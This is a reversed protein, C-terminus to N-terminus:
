DFDASRSIDELALINERVRDLKEIVADVSRNGLVLRLYEKKGAAMGVGLVVEFIREAAKVPDGPQTGHENELHQVIKQVPGDRYSDSPGQYSVAGRGLFNTRFPGPEVMLVRIGFPVLEQSLSESIAELAHKSAAYLSVAPPARLGAVSGINVITGAKAARMTPLVAQTVKLVGFVNTDFQAKATTEDIDEVAGVVAFGANNVVVDLRGYLKTADDIIQNIEPAPSTVDLTIWHGGQKTVEEVLEPTKSPNRSSAIVYHGHALVARAISIGFGASCGTILWVKPTSSDM